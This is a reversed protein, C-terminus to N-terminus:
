VAVAHGTAEHISAATAYGEAIVITDGPEGIFYYGNKINGGPHFRKEGDSAIKQLSSIEGDVYVPVLLQQGSERIGHAGVGKSVLYGHFTDAPKAKGWAEAASQAASQHARAREQEAQQRAQEIQAQWRRREAEDS